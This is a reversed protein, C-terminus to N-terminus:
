PNNQILLLQRHTLLGQTTITLHYTGNALSDPLRIESEISGGSSAIEYDTLLQGSMSYLRVQAPFQSNGTIRITEGAHTPNPWISWPNSVSEELSTIQSTSDATFGIADLAPQIEPNAMFLEWFLGSRYNEIMVVIPGQDIALYSDAFWNETLNFADHFGMTGWLDEGYVRYFHKLAELSETPTYPMSSLAATPTITGNDRSLTAEHALYGFPNDSATLGWCDPGYGQFQGPNQICWERNVLTHHANRIFYNAYGDSKLRPDFGLYSYHAFFLPGGNTPGTFLPYGYPSQPSTYGQGAWGSHYLSAPVSNTPSAIALIYTIHVENFGRLEFDIDWGFNPSWHWWLVSQNLKRYWNWEVSEWLNTISTRLAAEEISSGDLYSRASLLGQVLFATEVLDGGDDKASFPIVKGTTGNMWHPWVGHFRDASDLFATITTLRELGQQRTIWGREIGAIIAMIGFGSGGATVTNLSTNRERALGSVPHGFDWFYRFTAEQVMDLFMSDTMVEGSVAVMSSPASEAGSFSVSTMRYERDIGQGPDGWFDNVMSDGAPIFQSLLWSQGNDPSYYLHYGDLSTSSVPDWRFFGHREFGKGTLGIPTPPLGTSAPICKVEDVLLTHSQQDATDQSFIIAKIQNFQIATQNPDNFFVDLGVTIRTWSQAPIDQTFASLSYSQSKTTGPAGEMSIEPLVLASIGSESYVWFSLSDLSSIDLFPFGPAIVLADWNGGPKSNWTFSLADDGRYSQDSEVPIKDGSPGSRVFSSAGSTFALGTDYYGDDGSEDFFTVVQGSAAVPFFSAILLFLFIHLSHRM